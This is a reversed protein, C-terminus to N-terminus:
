SIQLASLIAAHNQYEYDLAHIGLERAAVVNKPTDDIFLVSHPTNVAEIKHLLNTFAEHNPKRFGQEYSRLVTTFHQYIEPMWEGAGNNLEIVDTLIHLTYKKKLQAALEVLGWDIRERTITNKKEWLTHGEQPDFSLNLKNKTKELFQLPTERGIMVSTKNQDWLEQAQELPINLIEALDNPYGTHLGDLNLFVGGFDFVIHQIM